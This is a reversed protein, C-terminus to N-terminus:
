GKLNAIVAMKNNHMTKAIDTQTRTVETQGNTIMTLRFSLESGLDNANGELKSLETDLAKFYKGKAETDKAAGGDALANMFDGFDVNGHANVKAIIRNFNDPTPNAEYANVAARVDRIAAKAANNASIQDAIDRLQLDMAEQAEHLVALLLANGGLGGGYTSEYRRSMSAEGFRDDKLAVNLNGKANAVDAATLPKM